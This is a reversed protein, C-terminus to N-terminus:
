LIEIKKPSLKKKLYGRGFKFVRRSIVLIYRCVLNWRNLSYQLVYVVFLMIGYGEKGSEFRIYGCLIRGGNNAVKGYSDRRPFNFIVYIVFFVM